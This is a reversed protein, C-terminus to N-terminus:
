EGLFWRRKLRREKRTWKFGFKKEAADAIHAIAEEPSDTIMFLDADAPSITREELMKGRLFGFMPEWYESGM